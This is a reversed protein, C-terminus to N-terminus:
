RRAGPLYEALARSEVSSNTDDAPEPGLDLRARCIAVIGAGHLDGLDRFQAEADSFFAEDNADQLRHVTTAEALRAYCALRMRSSEDPADRLVSGAEAFVAAASTADGACLRALGTVTLAIGRWRVGDSTVATMRGAEEDADAFRGRAIHGLATAVGIRPSPAPSALAHLRRAEVLYREADDLHARDLSVCALDLYTTAELAVWPSSRSTEGKPMGALTALVTGLLREARALDTVHLATALGIEADLRAYLLDDRRAAMDIWRLAAEYTRTAEAFRGRELLQSGVAALWGGPWSPTGYGRASKALAQFAERPTAGFRRWPLWDSVEHAESRLEVLAQGFAAAAAAEEGGALELESVILHAPARLSAGVYPRLSSPVDEDAVRIAERALALADVRRGARQNVAAISTLARSKAVPSSAGGLVSAALALAEVHRDQNSLCTMTRELRGAVESPAAPAEPESDFGELERLAVEEDAFRGERAASIARENAETRRAEHARMRRAIASQVEAEEMRGLRSLLEALQSASSSLSGAYAVRTAIRALRLLTAGPAMAHGEEEDEFLTGYGQLGRMTNRILYYNPRTAIARLVNFLERLLCSMRAREVFGEVLRGAVECLHAEVNEREGSADLAHTAFARAWTPLSYRWPELFSMQPESESVLLGRQSVAELVPLWEVEDLGEMTRETVGSPTCAVIRIARRELEDLSEYTAALAREIVSGRAEACRELFALPDRARAALSLAAPNGGLGALAAQDLHTEPRLAAFTEIALDLSLPAVEVNNALEPELPERRTVLFRVTTTAALLQRVTEGAEDFDWDDLVVWQTARKELSRGIAVLAAADDPVEPVNLPVWLDASLALVAEAVSQVPAGRARPHRGMARQALTSKGVGIGGTLVIVRRGEEALAERVNLPLTDQETPFM